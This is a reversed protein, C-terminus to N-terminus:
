LKALKEIRLKAKASFLWGAKEQSSFTLFINDFKLYIPMAIGLHNRVIISLKFFIGIM